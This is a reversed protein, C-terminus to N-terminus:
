IARILNSQIRNQAPVPPLGRLLFGDPFTRPQRNFQGLVDPPVPRLPGGSVVACGFRETSGIMRMCVRLWDGPCAFPGSMLYIGLIYRPITKLGHVTGCACGM